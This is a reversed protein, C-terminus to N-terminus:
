ISACIAFEGFGRLDFFAQTPAACRLSEGLFRKEVTEAGQTQPRLCAGEILRNREAVFQESRRRKGLAQALPNLCVGIREANPASMPMFFQRRLQGFAGCLFDCQSEQPFQERQQGSQEVINGIQAIPQFRRESLRGTGPWAFGRRRFPLLFNIRFDVPTSFVAITL